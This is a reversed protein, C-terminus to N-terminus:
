HRQQPLYDSFALMFLVLWVFGAAALSARANSNSRTIQAM